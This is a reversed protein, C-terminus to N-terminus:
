NQRTATFHLGCSGNTVDGSLTDGDLRGSLTVDSGAGQVSGDPAIMADVYVLPSWRYEFRSGQVELDLLGPHPCSRSDAQFRTSSGRYVGDIGSAQAPAGQAQTQVPPAPPPGCSMLCASLLAVPIFRRIAM